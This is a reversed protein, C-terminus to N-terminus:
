QVQPIAAKKKQPNFRYTYSLNSIFDIGTVRYLGSSQSNKSYNMAIRLGLNHNKKYVYSGGGQVNFVMNNSIDGVSNLSINSNLQVSLNKEKLYKRQIGAGLSHSRIKYFDADSQQYNYNGSINVAPDHISYSYTVGASYQVFDSFDQRLTNLNETATYNAMLGMMHANKGVPLTYNPSITFNHMIRNLRTTDNVPLSGDSQRMSYGTYTNNLSFNETPRLVLNATYNYIHNTYLQRRTLNDRQYGTMLNFIIKNKLLNTNFNWGINRYNNTM